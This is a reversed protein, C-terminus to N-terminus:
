TVNERDHPRPQACRVVLTHRARHWQQSALLALFKNQKSVLTRQATIGTTVKLLTHWKAGGTCAMIYHWIRAESNNTRVAFRWHMDRLFCAPRFRRM